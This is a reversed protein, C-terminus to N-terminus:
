EREEYEYEREVCDEDPTHKAKCIWCRRPRAAEDCDTKWADYGPLDNM